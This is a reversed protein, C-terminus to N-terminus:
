DWKMKELEYRQSLRPYAGSGMDLLFSTFPNITKMM